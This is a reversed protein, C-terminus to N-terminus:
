TRDGRSITDNKESTQQEIRHAQRTQRGMRGVHHKGQESCQRLPVSVVPQSPHTGVLQWARRSWRRHHFPGLDRRYM